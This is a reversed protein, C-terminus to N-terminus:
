EITHHSIRALRSTTRRRSTCEGRVRIPSSPTFTKFACKRQVMSVSLARPALWRSISRRVPMSRLVMRRYAFGIAAAFEGPTAVPVPGFEQAVDHNDRWEEVPEHMM